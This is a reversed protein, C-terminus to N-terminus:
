PVPEGIQSWLIRGTRVGLQYLVPDNDRGGVFVSDRATTIDRVEFIRFQWLLEATEADFAVLVGPFCLYVLLVGHCVLPRRGLLFHPAKFPLRAQRLVHGTALDYV